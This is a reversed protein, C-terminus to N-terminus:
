KKKKKSKKKSKKSGFGQSDNKTTKTSTFLSALKERSALRLKEIEDQSKLGLEVQIDYWDGMITKDVNGAKFAQEIIQITEVAESDLKLDVLYSILFANLTRDNYKHKKLQEAIIGICTDYVEPYKNGIAELAHAVEIRAWFNNHPDPVYNKLIPISEVGILCCIRHFDEGLWDDIYEDDQNALLALLPEIASIAQLQGLARWAHVPSWVEKSDSNAQHLEDDTAMSILEPIHKDELNLEEVYNLWNNRRVRYKRADGYNLLESVPFQYDSIGM